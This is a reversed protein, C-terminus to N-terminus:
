SLRRQALPSAKPLAPPAFKYFTYATLFAIKLFTAITEASKTRVNEIISM